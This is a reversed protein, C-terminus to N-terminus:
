GAPLERGYDDDFRVIDDEELYSGIQVEILELPITGPNELRHREGASIYTSKNEDLLIVKEGNTVRAMGKVVVWHEHRHHHMQLSLKAGPNVTIRKIRFRDGAELNTYSGWPRYVTKHIHFEDRGQRKLHTVIKKVDQSRAIPAVLVADATEVVMTDRLGVAAVLTHDARILCNAVDELIVDGAVVNGRTDKAALEWLARWSGIGSWGIDAEVVAARGTKEMLAYDISDDPCREMSARDFRFFVGDRTGQEVAAAM